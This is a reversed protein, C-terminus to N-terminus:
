KPSARTPNEEHVLAAQLDDVLALGEATIGQVVHSRTRDLTRFEHELTHTAKIM